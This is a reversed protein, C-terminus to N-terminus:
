AARSWPLYLRRLPLARQRDDENTSWSVGLAPPENGTVLTVEVPIPEGPDAPAALRVHSADLTEASAASKISLGGNARFALSATEA